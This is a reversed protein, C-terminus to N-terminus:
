SPSNLTQQLEWGQLSDVVVEEVKKKERAEM